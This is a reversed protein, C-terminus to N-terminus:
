KRLGARPPDVVALVQEGKGAEHMLTYIFDDANGCYFKCNEIKNVEANHKADHVAEEIIEM